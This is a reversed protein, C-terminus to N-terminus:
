RVIYLTQTQVSNEGSLVIYYKGAPFGHLDIAISRDGQALFGSFPQTLIAGDMSYVTLALFAGGNGTTNYVTVPVITADSAPNPAPPSVSFPTRRRIVKDCLGDIIISQAVVPGDLPCCDSYAIISPLKLATSTAAKLLPIRFHLNYLVSGTRPAFRQPTVVVIEGQAPEEWHLVADATVAGIQDIGAFSLYDPDFLISSAFTTSSGFATDAIVVPIRIDAGRVVRPEGISLPITRKCKCVSITDPEVFVVNPCGSTFDISDIAIAVKASSDQLIGTFRLGLLNGSAMGPTVVEAFCRVVGPRLEEVQTMTNQTITGPTIPMLPDITLLNPDFKVLFSFSLQLAKSIGPALRFYVLANSVPAIEEPAEVSLFLTDPRAPAYITDRAVATKGNLTAQIDLIHVSETCGSFQYVFSCYPSLMDSAISSYVADLESAQHLRFYLGGTQAAFKNLVIDSVQHLGYGITYFRVNERLAQQLVEDPSPTSQGQGDTLVVCYRPGQRSKLQEIALQITAYLPTNGRAVLNSLVDKLAQKDSTFDQVVSGGNDFTLIQCEDGPRLSDILRSAAEGLVDMTGSMSASNDLIMSLSLSTIDPCRVSFPVPVGNERIDYSAAGPQLVAVGGDTLLTNFRVVPFSNLKRDLIQLRLDQASTTGILIFLLLVFTSQIRM